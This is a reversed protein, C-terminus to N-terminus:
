SFKETRSQTCYFRTMKSYSDQSLRHIDVINRRCSYTFSQMFVLQRSWPWIYVDHKLRERQLSAWQNRLTWSDGFCLVRETWFCDLPQHCFHKLLKFWWCFHTWLLLFWLLEKFLQDVIWLWASMWSLLAFLGSESVSGSRGTVKWEKGVSFKCRAPFTDFPVLMGRRDTSM